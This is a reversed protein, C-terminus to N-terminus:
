GIAQAFTKLASRKLISILQSSSSSCSMNQQIKHSKRHSLGLFIFLNSVTTNCLANAKSKTNTSGIYNINLIRRTQCSKTTNGFWLLHCTAVNLWSRCWWGVAGAMGCLLTLDIKERRKEERSSGWPACAMPGVVPTFLLYINVLFTENWWCFVYQPNALAVTAAPAAVATELRWFSPQWSTRGGQGSASPSLCVCLLLSLSLTFASSSFSQKAM